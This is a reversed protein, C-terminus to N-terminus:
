NSAFWSVMQRVSQQDFKVRFKVYPGAATYGAASFDEDEFGSLNYGVGIWTNKVMAYGLSLGSCYDLQGANWSHMLSAHVGLDWKPTLDYRAELGTLDTYGAYSAADITDFAYKAGYQLSVQLREHPKYSANLNNVIRRAQYDNDDTQQTEIKYDLRDLVIWRTNKPRYALSLRLDGELSHDGQGTATDFLQLGASLGLGPRVEGAIGTLVDWKDESVSARHELRGNWSWLAAKYGAGLSVATFDEEAGAATPVSTNFVTPEGDRHVTQTRDIGGDVSWRENIQWTQTLGLNAFIRQSNEGIQRGLSSGLQGGSWPTAKLGLRSSQSDQDKGQTIEHEVFATVPESIKYDAGLITRTPFDESENNSGLSQERSLRAQLRNDLFRRSAGLLLQTSDDSQGETFSDQVLRLGSYLNYDARAYDVRTEGLDRRAGTALNDQRYFEGSLKWPDDMRWSGEAGVKRTQAEGGNQQGLGFGEGQERYYLRADLDASSKTLEALYGQGSDKQGASESNTTAAEAKIQLGNGLDVKADMGVLQGEAHRPGEHIYTAGVEVKGDALKVSGRGGYTYASEHANATEYEVVIYTPNFNEDRSYIPTKFFLTGADYDINYDIHRTLTQSSVIVESHFRDRTEITVKESNIMIGTRSLRYLGSTGNGRIEDKVFAQDTDAAFVNYGFREGAYESKLGNLRRSYRSLETVTLGTDYDGFLAYFQQREIKLYLKRVSAAENQQQTADGYLTYYTDPDITQFLQNDLDKRERGSDYALTMLWSGKIRGKAFFALRGDQYFDEQAGASKLNEMNGSLTNYGATGEALGLLIWDRAEPQLWVRVEHVKDALPLQIVALGSQTTPELKIRAIGDSGVQYRPKDDQIRTLTDSKVREKAEYAQFPPLVTYAGFMGFRAPQGDQDTLRVAIVPADKGNALLRSESKVWQAQVPPGAFHVRRELRGTERGSADKCVAVLRNDGERIDVGRWLSVAVTAAKNRLQGDYNLSSVPQDNLWLDITEGPSHEVAVKVSAIAPRFDPSPMLWALGPHLGEVDIDEFRQKPASEEPTEPRDPATGALTGRTSSVTQDACKISALDQILQVRVSMVKVEVRRNLARGAPSGNDAVPQTAGKGSVTIRSDPLHLRDALYRAVTRARALSLAQNDLFQHRRDPHVPRNDTHGTVVVHEIEFTKLQDALRDLKIRDATALEASLSEFQPRVILPAQIQRTSRRDLALITDIMPTRQNKRSTTNFTLLARTHLRGPQAADDLAIAFDLHRTRGAAADGLRFNIVNGMVQPELAQDGDMRGSGELYRGGEPLIVSLRANALPVGQVAVDAIYNVVGQDLHCAMKLAAEGSPPAKTQLHFDERWLAGGHLDVFRSFPTGAQRSNEGCASLEYSEPISALDMQLVHTGSSVGEFHYMGQEDTIVYTGDELYIRVGAVGDQRDTPDDSCNDAIVRGAIFNHSRFLEEKVTVVASAQNSRVGGVASGQVRNVAKGPKAGATIETVYRIEKTSGDPLDGLEFTLSDGQSAIRPDAASQGGLRASGPRFRFGPPLRDTLVVGSAPSGSTNEVSVTYQVFDGIAAVDRNVTKHLWLGVGTPDVPIDLRVVPGPNIVFVGGYSGPTALAFPAGPLKQLAAEAVASPAAYGGPATAILRYSGPRVFPFRYAGTAFAYVKGSSDTFTGGSTIVSPFTSLGDDGYVTAPLGTDAEVLALQVNDVPQGTASDFVRGFPDVLASVAKTDTVDSADTYQLSIQEGAAVDLLGNYAQVPGHGGTQIYGVFVGTNPGTESLLLLESDHSDSSQILAYVTQVTAPDVNQDPDTIRTFVPEGQHYITAATLPVPQTLDIPTASGAPYVAAIQQAAGKGDGDPEFNAMPVSVQEAGGVTPAFQLLEVQATTRPWQTTISVAPSTIASANGWVRFTARATNTILTGPAAARATAALLLLLIILAGAPGWARRAGKVLSSFTPQQHYSAFTGDEGHASGARHGCAKSAKRSLQRVYPFIFSKM